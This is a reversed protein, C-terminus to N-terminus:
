QFMSPLDDERQYQWVASESGGEAPEDFQQLPDGNTRMAGLREPPCNSVEPMQQIVAHVKEAHRARTTSNGSLQRDPLVQPASWLLLAGGCLAMLLEIATEWIRGIAAVLIADGAPMLTGLGAIFVGERVGLGAPTFFAAIGLVHAAVFIWAIKPLSVISLNRLSQVLFFFGVGFLLWTVANFVALLVKEKFLLHLRLRGLNWRDTFLSLREAFLRFIGFAALLLVCLLGVPIWLRSELFQGGLIVIMMAGILGYLLAAVACTGGLLPAIGVRHCVHEATIVTWVKGPLYKALQPIHVLGISESLRVRQGQRHMLYQTQLAWLIEATVGLAISVALPQLKLSHRWEILNCHALVYREVSIAMAAFLILSLANKWSLRV